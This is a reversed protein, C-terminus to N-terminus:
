IGISALISIMLNAFLTGFGVSYDVWNFCGSNLNRGFIFLVLLLTFIASLINLKDSIKM